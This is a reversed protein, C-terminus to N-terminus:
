KLTELKAPDFDPGQLLKVETKSMRVEVGAETLAVKLRDVLSFDKTLLAADRAERLYTELADLDYARRAIIASALTNKSLLGLMIGNSIVQLQDQVNTADAYKSHERFVRIAEVTNLDDALADLLDSSPSPLSETRWEPLRGRVKKSHVNHLASEFKEYINSLATHAERRKKETWDMPKRYHTSLMVFRIVEGPVGQDLLDRVTFFSDRICMESGM